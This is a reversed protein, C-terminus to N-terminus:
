VKILLTSKFVCQVRPWLLTPITHREQDRGHRHSEGGSVLGGFGSRMKVSM